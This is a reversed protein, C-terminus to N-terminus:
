AVTKDSTLFRDKVPALVVIHGLARPTVQGRTIREELMPPRGSATRNSTTTAHPDDDGVALVSVAVAELALITAVGDGVVMVVAEGTVPGNRAM